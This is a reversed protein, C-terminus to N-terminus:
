KDKKVMLRKFWNEKSPNYCYIQYVIKNKLRSYKYKYSTKLKYKSKNKYKSCQSHYCYIEEENLNCKEIYKIEDYKSSAPFFGSVIDAISSNISLILLILIVVLYFSKKMSKSGFM